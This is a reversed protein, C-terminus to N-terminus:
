EAKAMGASLVGFTMLCLVRTFNAVDIGGVETVAVLRDDVLEDCRPSVYATDFMALPSASEGRGSVRLRDPGVAFGSRFDFRLSFDFAPSSSREKSSTTSAILGSNICSM